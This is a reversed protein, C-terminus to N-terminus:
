IAICMEIIAPNAGVLIWHNHHQTSTVGARLLACRALSRSSFPLSLSSHVEDAWERTPFAGFWLLYWATFGCQSDGTRTKSFDKFIFCEWHSDAQSLWLYFFGVVIGKDRGHALESDSSAGFARLFFRNKQIQVVCVQDKLLHSTCFGQLKQELSFHHFIPLVADERNILCNQASSCLIETRDPSCQVPNARFRGLQGM